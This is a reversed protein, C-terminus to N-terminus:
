LAKKTHGNHPVELWTSKLKAAKDTWELTTSVDLGLSQSEGIM